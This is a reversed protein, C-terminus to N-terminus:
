NNQVSIKFIFIRKFISLQKKKWLFLYKNVPEALPVTWACYVGESVTPLLSGSFKVDNNLAALINKQVCFEFIINFTNLCKCWFPNCNSIGYFGFAIQFHLKPHIVPDTTYSFINIPFYIFCVNVSDYIM